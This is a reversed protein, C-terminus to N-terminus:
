ELTPLNEVQKKFQYIDKKDLKDRIVEQLLTSKSELQKINKDQNENIKAQM